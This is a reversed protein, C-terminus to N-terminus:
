LNANKNRMVDMWGVAIHNTNKNGEDCIYIHTNICTNDYWFRVCITITINVTLPLAVQINWEDDHMTDYIHVCIAVMWTHSLFLSCTERAYCLGLQFTYYLLLAYALRSNKRFSNKSHCFFAKLPREGNTNTAYDFVTYATIFECSYM